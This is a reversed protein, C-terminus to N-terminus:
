AATDNTINPVSLSSNALAESVSVTQQKTRLDQLLVTLTPVETRAM